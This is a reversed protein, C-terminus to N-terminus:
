MQWLLRVRFGMIFVFLKVKTVVLSTQHDLSLHFTPQISVLLNHVSRFSSTMENVFFFWSWYNNWQLLFIILYSLHLHCSQLRCTTTQLFHHNTPIACTYSPFCRVLNQM